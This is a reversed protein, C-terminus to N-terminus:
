IIIPKFEGAAEVTIKPTYDILKTKNGRMKKFVFEEVRLNSFIYHRYHTYFLDEVFYVKPEIVDFVLVFLAAFIGVIVQTYTANTAMIPSNPLSNFYYVQKDAYDLMVGINDAGNLVESVNDGHALDKIAIKKKRQYLNTM